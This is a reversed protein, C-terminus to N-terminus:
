TMKVDPWAGSSETAGDARLGLKLFREGEGTLAGGVEARRGGEEEEPRAGGQEEGNLTTGANDGVGKDASPNVEGFVTEPAREQKDGVRQELLTDEM